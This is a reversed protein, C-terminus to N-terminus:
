INAFQSLIKKDDGSEGECLMPSGLTCAEPRAFGPDERSTKQISSKPPGQTGNGFSEQALFGNRGAALSGRCGLIWLFKYCNCMWPFACPSVGTIRACQSVSAPPHNSVLLELGAQGVNHFEIEVSFVFILQAHHHIGTTGTVQSALALSDGLGLLCLNCHALILGSCGALTKVQDLGTLSLQLGLVKLPRPPLIMFDPSRSWRSGLLCLNCRALIAGSCELRSSLALHEMEFVFVFCFVLSADQHCRIHVTVGANQSASTPPDGSTLLKLGAQGVHYFGTEVLFGFILQTHHHVGTTGTPLSFCFFQKLESPLPQLSSLVRWQLGAQTVSHSETQSQYKIFFVPKIPDGNQLSYSCPVLMQEAEPSSRLFSVIM